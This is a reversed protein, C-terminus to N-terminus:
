VCVRVLQVRGFGGVGLTVPDGQYRGEQYLVPVLDKFRLTASPSASMCVCENVENGVPSSYHRNPQHRQRAASRSKVPPTAEQM